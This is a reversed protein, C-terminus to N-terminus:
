QDAICDSDRNTVFPDGGLAYILYDSTVQNRSLLSQRIKAPSHLDYWRETAIFNWEM